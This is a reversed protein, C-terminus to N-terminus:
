LGIKRYSRILGVSPLKFNSSKLFSVGSGTAKNNGTEDCFLESFSRKNRVISDSWYELTQFRFTNAAVHLKRNGRLFSVLSRKNQVILECEANQMMVM